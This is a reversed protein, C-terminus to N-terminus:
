LGFKQELTDSLDYIQFSIIKNLRELFVDVHGVFLVQLLLIHVIIQLNQVMGLLKNLGGQIFLNM